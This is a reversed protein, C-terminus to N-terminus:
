PVDSSINVEEKDFANDAGTKRMAERRDEEAQRAINADMEIQYKLLAVIDGLFVKSETLLSNRFAGDLAIKGQAALAMGQREESRAQAARNNSQNLSPLAGREAM